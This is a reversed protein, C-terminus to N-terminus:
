AACPDHALGEKAPFNTDHGKAGGEFGDSKVFALQWRRLLAVGIALSFSRLGNM